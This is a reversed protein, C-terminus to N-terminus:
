LWCWCQTSGSLAPRSCEPSCDEKLAPTGAAACNEEREATNESPRGAWVWAGSALGQPLPCGAADGGEGLLPIKGLTGQASRGESRMPCLETVHGGGIM